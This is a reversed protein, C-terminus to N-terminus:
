GVRPLVKRTCDKLAICRVKQLWIRTSKIKVTPSKPSGLITSGIQDATKIRSVNFSWQKDRTIIVTKLKNVDVFCKEENICQAM